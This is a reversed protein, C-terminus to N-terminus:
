QCHGGNKDRFGQYMLAKDFMGLFHYLKPHEILWKCFDNEPRTFFLLYPLYSATYRPETQAKFGFGNLTPSGLQTPKRQSGAPGRQPSMAQQVEGGSKNTASDEARIPSASKTTM